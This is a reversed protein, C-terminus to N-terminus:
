IYRGGENPRNKKKGGRKKQLPMTQRTILQKMLVCSKKKKEQNSKEGDPYSRAITSRSNRNGNKGKKGGEERKATKPLRQSILYLGVGKKKGATKLWIRNCEQSGEEGERGRTELLGLNILKPELLCDARGEKKEPVQGATELEEIFKGGEQHRFYIAFGAIM